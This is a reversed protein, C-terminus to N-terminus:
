EDPYIIEYFARLVDQSLQLERALIVLGTRLPNYKQKRDTLRQSFPIIKEQEEDIVLLDILPSVARARLYDGYGNCGRTITIGTPLGLDRRNGHLDSKFLVRTLGSAEWHGIQSSPQKMSNRLSYPIPEVTVIPIELVPPQNPPNIYYNRWGVEAQNCYGILNEDPEVPNPQRPIFVSMNMYRCGNIDLYRAGGRDYERFISHKGFIRGTSKDLIVPVGIFESASEIDVNIPIHTADVSVSAKYDGLESIIM